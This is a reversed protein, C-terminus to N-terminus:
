LPSRKFYSVYMEDNTDRHIRALHCQSSYEYNRGRSSFITDLRFLNANSEGCISITVGIIGAKSAAYAASGKGGKIGLLSSV